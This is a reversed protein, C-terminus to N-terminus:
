SLSAKTPLVSDITDPLANYRWGLSKAYTEAVEIGVKLSIYNYIFTDPSDSASARTVIASQAQM